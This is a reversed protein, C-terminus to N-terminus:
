PLVWDRISYYDELIKQKQSLYHNLHAKDKTLGLLHYDKRALESHFLQRLRNMMEYWEALTKEKAIFLKGKGRTDIFLEAWGSDSMPTDLIPFMFDSAYPVSRYRLVPIYGNAKVRRVLLESVSPRMKVAFMPNHNFSEDLGIDVLDGRDDILRRQVFYRPYIIIVKGKDIVIIGGRETTLPDGDAYSEKLPFGDEQLFRPLFRSRSQTSASCTDIQIGRIQVFEGRNMETSLRYGWGPYFRILPKVSGGVVALNNFQANFYSTSHLVATRKVPIQEDLNLRYNHDEVVRRVRERRSLQSPRPDYRDQDPTILGFRWVEKYGIQGTKMLDDRITSIVSKQGLIRAIFEPTVGNTLASQISSDLSSSAAFRRTEMVDSAVAIGKRKATEFLSARYCFYFLFSFYGADWSVPLPHGLIFKPLILLVAFALMMVRNLQVISFPLTLVKILAHILATVQLRLADAVGRPKRTYDSFILGGFTEQQRDHVQMTREIFDLFASANNLGQSNVAVGLLFMWCISAGIGLILVLSVINFESASLPQHSASTLSFLVRFGVRFHVYLFALTAILSYSILSFALTDNKKM